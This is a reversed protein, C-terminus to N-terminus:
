TNKPKFPLIQQQIFNALTAFEPDKHVLIAQENKALAGICADAFSLAGTTKFQGAIAVLSHDFDQVILQLAMINNIIKDATAVDYKRNFKYYLEVLTLVSIMAICKNQIHESLIAVIQEADAEDQLLTLVASTDLFYKKM